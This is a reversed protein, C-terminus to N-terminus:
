ADRDGDTNTFRWVTPTVLGDHELAYLADLVQLEDLGTARALESLRAASCRNRLVELVRRRAHQDGASAPTATTTTKTM